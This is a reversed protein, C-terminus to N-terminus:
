KIVKIGYNIDNKYNKLQYHTAIHQTACVGLCIIKEKPITYSNNKNHNILKM